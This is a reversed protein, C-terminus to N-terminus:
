VPTISLEGSVRPLITDSYASLRDITSAREDWLAADHWYRILLKLVAAFAVVHLNSILHIEPWLLTSPLSATSLSAFSAAEPHELAIASRGQISLFGRGILTEARLCFYM